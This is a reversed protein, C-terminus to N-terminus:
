AKSAAAIRERAIRDAAQHPPVGDTKAAELVKM